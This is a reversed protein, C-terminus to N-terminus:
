GKLRRKEQVYEILQAIRKIESELSSDLGNVTLKLKGSNYWDYFNRGLEIFKDNQM